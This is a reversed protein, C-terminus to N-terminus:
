FWSKLKSTAAEFGGRLVAVVVAAGVLAEALAVVGLAVVLAVVM